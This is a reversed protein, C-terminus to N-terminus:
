AIPSLRSLIMVDRREGKTTIHESRLLGEERFGVARALGLSPANEPLVRATIRAISHRDLEALTLELMERGLGQGRFDSDLLYGLETSRMKWDLNKVQLHGILAKSNNKRALYHFGCGSAATHAREAIYAQMQILESMRGLQPFSDELSKRNRAALDLLESADALKSLTLTLNPGRLERALFPSPAPENACLLRLREKIAPWEAKVVSYLMGEPSTDDGRVVWHKIKGEFRAGLRLVAAQSAYNLADVRLEVRVARLAEFAHTFLMRKIETNVRSRRFKPSVLTIGIELCLRRESFNHLSTVGAIEGDVLYVLPLSEGRAKSDLQKRLFLESKAPTETGWHRTAWGGPDQLALAAIPIDREELPRLTINGSSTTFNETAWTM